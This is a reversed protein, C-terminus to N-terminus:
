AGDNFGHANPGGFQNQYMMARILTLMEDESPGQQAQAQMQQQQEQPMTQYLQQGAWQAYPEAMREFDTKPAPNGFQMNGFRVPGGGMGQMGGFGAMGGMAGSLLGRTHGLGNMADRQALAMFHPSVGTPRNMSLAAMQDNMPYGLM